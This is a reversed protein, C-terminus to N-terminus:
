VELSPKIHNNKHNNRLLVLTKVEQQKNTRTSDMAVRKLRVHRYKRIIDRPIMSPFEREETRRLHKRNRRYLRGNATRVVYFRPQEHREQVVAPKWTEGRQIRVNEGAQLDYYIKQTKQRAKLKKQVQSTGKSILPSTLLSTSTPLKSKLRWGILLQAPSLGVGEIPANCFELLAIYPDDNSCQSKKLLNKITQVMREAQGNSQAHGPSSTVHEFEWSEAFAKFETSAFQPGNDSVVKDPIGHRAFVSKM